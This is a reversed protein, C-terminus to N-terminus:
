AAIVEERAAYHCAAIHGHAKLELPPAVQRCLDTV